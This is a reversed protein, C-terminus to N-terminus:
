WLLLGTDSERHALLYTNSVSDPDVALAALARLSQGLEGAWMVGM